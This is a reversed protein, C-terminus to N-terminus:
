DGGLKFHWLLAMVRSSSFWIIFGWAIMVSFVWNRSMKVIYDLAFSIKIKENSIDTTDEFFPGIDETELSLQQEVNIEEEGAGVYRNRLVDVYM